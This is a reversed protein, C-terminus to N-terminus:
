LTTYAGTTHAYGEKRVSVSRIHAARERCRTSEVRSQVLLTMGRSCLGYLQHAEIQTEMRIERHQWAHAWILRASTAAQVRARVPTHARSHVEIPVHYPTFTFVPHTSLGVNCPFGWRQCTCQMTGQAPRMVRVWYNTQESLM